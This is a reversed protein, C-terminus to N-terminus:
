ALLDAKSVMAENLGWFEHIMIVTPFPGVREPKAVYARVDPSGDLGPVTTYAIANLRDSGIAYDVIISGVLFIVFAAFLILIGLLVRRLLKM